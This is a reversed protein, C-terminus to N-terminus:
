DLSLNPCALSSHKSPQCPVILSNSSNQKLEGKPVDLVLQLEPRIKQEPFLKRAEQPLKIQNVRNSQQKASHGKRENQAQWGGGRKAPGSFV